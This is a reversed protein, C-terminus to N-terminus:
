RVDSAAIFENTAVRYYQVNNIYVIMDTRWDSNAQLARNTIKKGHADVLRAQWKTTVVKNVAEYNYGDSLKIWENTAVRLYTVGDIVLQQDSMWNTNAALMRNAKTIKNGNIHYITVNGKDSFTTIKSTKNVVQPKVTTENNNSNNNPKSPKTPTTPKNPTQPNSPQTPKTSTQGSGDQTYEVKETTTITGDANVTANVSYKDMTYGKVYPVSVTITDGKRGEVNKVVQKGLNSEIVVDAKVKVAKTVFTQYGKRGEGDYYKVLSQGSTDTASFSLLGEPKEETGKGVSIWNNSGFNPLVDEKHFKNKAGLTIKFLNTKTFMNSTNKVQKMDFRSVDLTRLASDGYFMESMDTVKSTNVYPMFIRILNWDNKFIAHLDTVTEIEDWLEIEKLSHMDAFMSSMNKVSSFNFGTPNIDKVNVFYNAFLSSSDEPLKVGSKIDISIIKNGYKKGIEQTDKVTIKGGILYLKGDNSIVYNSTGDKGKTIIEDTGLGDPLENLDGPNEPNEPNEPHYTIEDSTTITGDENVKVQVRTQDMYYGEITPVNIYFTDGVKGTVNRVVKEGLNTKITVDATITPIVAYFGHEGIGGKGDYYKALSLGTTDTSSFSLDSGDYEKKTEWNSSYKNPLTDEKSFKNKAGLSIYTLNTGKFIDKTSIVQRMDIKSINLDKLSSVGAFMESMDKVKSTDFRNISLTNISQDGKFMSNMSEVNSTNLDSDFYNLAKLNAFMYSMDKTEMTNFRYLTFDRVKTFGKAFLNSSDKPAKVDGKAFATTIRFIKEGYDKGIQQTDKVSLEGELLYLTGRNSIVYNCTGDKGKAIIEKTGLGDPLEQEVLNEAPKVKFTRLGTSKSGDYYKSLSAGTKGDSSFQLVEGSPDNSIWDRSYANPLLTDKSFNNKASLTISELNTKGFMDKTNTVNSMDFTSIDVEKLSSCGFFMESMDMVKSSYLDMLHVDILNKDNKFMSKMSTSNIGNNPNFLIGFTKLNNMNEFMSSMDKASSIDLKGINMKIVETFYDAFLRSSDEPAIVSYFANGKAFSTDISTILKGYKRGIEQTDKVSLEGELLYLVGARSIVFNSTGDKGFALVDRLGLVEPLEFDPQLNEKDKIGQSTTDKSTEITKSDDVQTAADVVTTGFAVSAGLALTSAVIWNKGKKYMKKRMITNPDQKMQQFRM